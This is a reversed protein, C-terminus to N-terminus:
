PNCNLKANIPADGHHSYPDARPQGYGNYEQELALTDLEEAIRDFIFEAMEFTCNEWSSGGSEHNTVNPECIHRRIFAEWMGRANINYRGGMEEIDWTEFEDLFPASMFLKDQGSFVLEPEWNVGVASLDGMDKFAYSASLYTAVTKEMLEPLNNM